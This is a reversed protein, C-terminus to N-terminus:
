TTHECETNYLWCFFDRLHVVYKSFVGIHECRKTQLFNDSMNKIVTLTHVNRDTLLYINFISIRLKKIVHIYDDARVNWMKIIIIIIPPWNKQHVYLSLVFFQFVKIPRIWNLCFLKLHFHIRGDISCYM